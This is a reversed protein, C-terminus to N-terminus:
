RLNILKVGVFVTVLFDSNVGFVAHVAPSAVDLSGAVSDGPHYGIAAIAGFKL